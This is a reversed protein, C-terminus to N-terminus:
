DDDPIEWLIWRDNSWIEVFNTQAVDEVSPQWGNPRRRQALYDARLAVVDINNHQFSRRDTLLTMTRSKFYAVVADPPTLEAVADFIPMVDPNPPGSMMAGSDNFRQTGDIKSPLVNAHAFLLIGLPAVGLWLALERRNRVLVAAVACCAALAFYLVFPTVQFWYRDVRRIHTGVTVASLLAILLIPGDLRPRRILGIVIGVAALLLLIVGVWTRPGLGLQDSIIWPAEKWRDDINGPSNGNDPFLATPLLLQFFVVFGAFSLHPAAIAQWSTRVREVMDRPRWSESVIEVAQIVVIAAPVVVAERRVNFALAAFVGLTVLHGIRADILKSAAMTRDLWWLVAGLAALYPFETLLQETHRLYAPSTGIVMVVGLAAVAGIRRRVIGHLFVLFVLFSAVEILKLQDYDLGWRWVFPSLILPWGWPYGIPSFVASSNNVAFRNDAIVQGPDGDFISRAQRLYLAFDDGETHGARHLAVALVGSGILVLPLAFRSLDVASRTQRESM